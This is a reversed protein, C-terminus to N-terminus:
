LSLFTILLPSVTSFIMSPEVSANKPPQFLTLSYKISPCGKSVFSSMLPMASSELWIAAVKKSLDVYYQFRKKANEINQAEQIRANEQQISLIEASKKTLPVALHKKFLFNNAYGDSVKVTQDKKGVKKVDKLLIVKM